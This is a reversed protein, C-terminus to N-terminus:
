TYLSILSAGKEPDISKLKEFIMLGKSTLGEQFYLVGLRHLVEPDKPRIKALIEYERLEEKTRKLDRFSIALQQHVWANDPVYTALIRFEEIAKEMILKFKKKLFRRISPRRAWSQESGKQFITSLSVYANALAAHLELNTPELLILSLIEDIGLHLLHERVRLIDLGHRRASIKALTTELFGFSPPLTYLHFEKGQLSNALRAYAHALEVHQDPHDSQWKEKISQGFSEALYQIQEVKQTHLQLRLLLYTFLSLFIVALSLALLSSMSLLTFFVGFAVVEVILLLWFLFHFLINKRLLTALRQHFLQLADQGEHIHTCADLRISHTLDLSSSNM